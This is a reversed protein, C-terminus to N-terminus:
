KRQKAAWRLYWFWGIVMLVIIGSLVIVLVTYGKVAGINRELVPKDEKAQNRRGRSILSHHNATSASAVAVATAYLGNMCALLLACVAIAVRHRSSPHM